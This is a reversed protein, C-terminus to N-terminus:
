KWHFDKEAQSNCQPHYSATKLCMAGMHTMLAESVKACFEKGEDTVIDMPIGYRCFWKEFIAEAVLSAEKNHIAVLEVYKTFADTMCLIYM